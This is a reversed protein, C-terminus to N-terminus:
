TRKGGSEQKSRTTALDEYLGQAVALFQRSADLAAEELKTELEGHMTWPEDKRARMVDLKLELDKERLLDVLFNIGRLVQGPKRVRVASLWLLMETSPALLTTPPTRAWFRLVGLGDETISYVPKAGRAGEVLESRLLGIEAMQPIANYLSTEPFMPRLQKVITYANVPDACESVATLVGIQLLTRQPVEHEDASRPGRKDAASMAM